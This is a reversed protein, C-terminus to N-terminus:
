KHWFVFVGYDACDVSCGTTKFMDYDFFWDRLVCRNLWWNNDEVIGVYLKNPDDGIKGLTGGYWISGISEEGFCKRITQEYDKISM